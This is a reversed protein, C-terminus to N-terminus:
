STMGACAPIWVQGQSFLSGTSFGQIGAEAPIVFGPSAKNLINKSFALTNGGTSDRCVMPTAEGAFKDAVARIHENVGFIEQLVVIGGRPKGSPEVRYADFDHGDAAKIRVMTGM